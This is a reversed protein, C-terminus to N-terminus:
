SKIEDRDDPILSEMIVHEIRRLHEGVNATTCDLKTAIEEHTTQRPQQYYGHKYAMMLVERQKESLKSLSNDFSPKYRGIDKVDIRAEGPASNFIEKLDAETGIFTHQIGGDTTVQHPPDPIVTSEQIKKLIEKVPGTPEFHIHIVVSDNNKTIRYDQTITNDELIKRTEEESGQVEYLMIATEDNLLGISHIAIPKVSSHKSFDKGIPQFWGDEHRYIFTAYRM